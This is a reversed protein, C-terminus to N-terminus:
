ATKGTYLQYYRGKEAILGDHNGREVIRGQEMFAKHFLPMAKEMIFFLVCALVVLAVLFILSLRVNVFFCMVMSCILM